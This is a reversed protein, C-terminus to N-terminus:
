RYLLLKITYASRIKQTWENYYAAHESMSWPTRTLFLYFRPLKSFAFFIFFPQRKDGRYIFIINSEIEGAYWHPLHRDSSRDNARRRRTSRHRQHHAVAHPAGSLPTAHHSNHFLKLLLTPGWNPLQSLNSVGHVNLHVRTKSRFTAALELHQDSINIIERRPEYIWWRKRLIQRKQKLKVRGYGTKMNKINYMIIDQHTETQNKMKLGQSTLFCSRTQILV